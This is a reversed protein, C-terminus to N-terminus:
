GELRDKIRKLKDVIAERFDKDTPDKSDKVQELLEVLETSDLYDLMPYKNM